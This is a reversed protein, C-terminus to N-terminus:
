SAPVEDAVRVGAVREYLEAVASYDSSGFGLASAQSYEDYARTSSPMPVGSSQATELAARLDKRLLDLAFGGQHHDAFWAKPLWTTLLYNSATAAALVERLRGIDAGAKKAFVLGEVNALMVNAIIVQNVLKFTEGMGAPGAHAPKGLAQLVPLAREYIKPDGGVMIALEGTKARAPGGSVPADLMHKREQALREHFSRSAVPSITSMDIVIGDARLGDAVGAPGFLAEEVQPADPVMAIVADSHAAVEAPTAHEVAGQAVLREIPGRNRHTCVHVSFGARLLSAAMPEGMAGAGILGVREIV